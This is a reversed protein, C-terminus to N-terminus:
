ESDKNSRIYAEVAAVFRDAEIFSQLAEEENVTFVDGYDTEQRRQFALHLARSLERPFIGTKIFNRDFFAVVGSHKSTIEQRLATLSLVAYFMAYYARNITGRLLGAERLTNAERLSEHAQELRMEILQEIPTPTM